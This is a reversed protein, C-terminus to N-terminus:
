PTSGQCIHYGFINSLFNPFLWIENMTKPLQEWQDYTFSFTNNIICIEPVLRGFRPLMDFHQQYWFLETM